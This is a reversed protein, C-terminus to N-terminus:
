CKLSRTLTRKRASSRGKTFSVTRVRLYFRLALTVAVNVPLNVVKLSVPELHTPLCLYLPGYLNSKPIFFGAFYHPNEPTGVYIYSCVQSFHNSGKSFMYM